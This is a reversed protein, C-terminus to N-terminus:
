RQEQGDPYDRDTYNEFKTLQGEFTLELTGVPGNRQKGIIIEAIGKKELNEPNYIEDRYIFLIVDADQEIAGSERLDSMRPRKNERNELSRNLQSLAVMPCRMEKALAKLGRSIESIELTRNEVKGHMRMLQMYDVIILKVGGAERAVRRVRARVDNPTLAPSDDIYLPKGKLQQLASGLAPWDHDHVQGRRLRDHEVAAMSSLIRLVLQEAPQELSFIVVAGAKTQDSMVVYEAINVALSTKGMSPRGAIVVLDSDQLGATRADLDMFGTALGTLGGGSRSLEEVREMAATLLPSVERPGTGELLEESIGFVATEANDLLEAASRGAPEFVSEGIDNAAALLKRMTARERVIEAYAAINAAAPTSEALEALYAPGGTKEVMGRSRLHESVTVVDLPQLENALDRMAGFILRHAPRYFDDPLLIDAIRDWAQGDLMLGGLVSQEAEISNPPVKLRAINSEDASTSTAM